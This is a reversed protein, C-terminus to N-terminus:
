RTIDEVVPIKITESSRVFGNDTIEIDCLLVDIPWTGTGDEPEIAFKSDDEDDPIVTMNAILTGNIRRIQSAITKGVITAPQDDVKYRCVLSFTDGRKFPQLTKM